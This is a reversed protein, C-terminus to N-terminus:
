VWSSSIMPTLPAVSGNQAHTQPVERNNTTNVASYDVDAFFLRFFFRLQLSRLKPYAHRRAHTHKYTRAHAQVNHQTCAHTLHFHQRTRLLRVLSVSCKVNERLQVTLHYRQRAKSAFHNQHHVDGRQSACGHTVVRLHVLQDLLETLAESDQREWAVLESMLHSDKRPLVCNTNSFYITVAAESVLQWKQRCRM